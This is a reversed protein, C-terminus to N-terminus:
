MLIKQNLIKKLKAKKNAKEKQKPYLCSDEFESEMFKMKKKM